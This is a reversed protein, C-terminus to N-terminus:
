LMVNRAVRWNHLPVLKATSAYKLLSGTMDNRKVENSYHANGGGNWCFNWAEFAWLRLHRGFCCKDGGISLLIAM